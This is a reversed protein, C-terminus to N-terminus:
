ADSGTARVTRRLVIAIEEPPASRVLCDRAGADIAETIGEDFESAVLLCVAAEPAARTIHRTAEAASMGPLRLDLLVVDPRHRWAEIVVDAGNAASAAVEVNSLTGLSALLGARLAQDREGVVVRFRRAGPRMGTRAPM